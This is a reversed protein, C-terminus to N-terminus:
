SASILRFCGRSSVWPDGGQTMLADMTGTCSRRRTTVPHRPRPFSRRSTLQPAAPQARREPPRQLTRPLEPCEGKDICVDLSGDEFPLARIDGVVGVLAGFRADATECADAPLRRGFIVLVDM